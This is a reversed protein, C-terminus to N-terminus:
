HALVSRVAAKITQRTTDVQLDGPLVDTQDDLDVTPVV